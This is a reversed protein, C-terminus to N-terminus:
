MFNNTKTYYKRSSMEPDNDIIEKAKTSTIRDYMWKLKKNIREEDVTLEIIVPVNNEFCSISDADKLLNQDDNGGEEHKSVLMKVREILSKDAQERELFQGIIRASNEEHPRLFDLSLYDKIERINDTRFARDIDHAVGAILLAEDADPNLVKIWYATRKFHQIETSLDYNKGKQSFSNIVFKEVLDYWKM